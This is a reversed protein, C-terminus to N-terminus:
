FSVNLGAYFMRSPQFEYTLGATSAYNSAPTGKIDTVVRSDFVNNMGFKFEAIKGIGLQKALYDSRYGIVIDTEEYAPIHNSTFATGTAANLIQDNGGQTGWSDGVVKNLVSGFYTGDDYILGAVATYRPVGGIAFGAHPHLNADIGSTYRGSNYTANTYLALSKILTYTLEGEIGKYQAGGNDCYYAIGTVVDTTQTAFHQANILYLDADATLNESKYVIGTQYNETREPYVKNQVTPFV